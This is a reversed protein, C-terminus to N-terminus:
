RATFTGLLAVNPDLRVERPAVSLSWPISVRATPLAPVEVSVLERQGDARVLEISVTFRYPQFRGGQEVTLTLGSTGAEFRWRTRAEIFGPRRLWQDFFWGLDRGAAREMAARLDDTMATDHRHARWYSKVGRDFAATGIEGRLMHLVWGGKQYSNTNLLAMLDTQASDIVPRTAVEPASLIQARTSAMEARFASDGFAHETYLAAYYTAFGESLWLDSWERETVANGFWQHATEHAILGISVGFPRRFLGDAYFIAGANEMGGFRTSSQLHALKEYPFPGVRASFFRVIEGARDFHGPLFREQEPAVYVQQAVCEGIAALGCASAPLDRRVLPAAAIVMLYTPIPVTTRWTTRRMPRGAPTGLLPIEETREGNAVVTRSAPAIVSFTVLAKDSPHDISAIWHRARNPWNDGFARWRGASDTTIVLGDTPAGEYELAVCLSDETAGVLAVRTRGSDQVFPAAASTAGCGLRAARVLMPPALDLRLTDTGRQRVFEVQEAVRIVKGTDPLTITLRYHQIDIGRQQGEGRSLPTLLAAGVSLLSVVLRRGTM